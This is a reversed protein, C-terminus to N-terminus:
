RRVLRPIKTIRGINGGITKGDKPVTSLVSCCHTTKVRLANVISVTEILIYAGIMDSFVCNSLLQPTNAPEGLARWQSGIAQRMIFSLRSSPMDLASVPM